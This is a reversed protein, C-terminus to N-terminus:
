RRDWFAGREDFEREEFAREDFERNQKPCNHSPPAGLKERKVPTLPHEFGCDECRYLFRGEYMDILKLAM